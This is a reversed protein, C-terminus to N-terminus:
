NTKKNEAVSGLEYAHQRSPLDLMRAIDSWGFGAGRLALVAARKDGVVSAGKPRGAGARAGGRPTTNTALKEERAIRWVTARSVEVEECESIQDPTYGSLLLEVVFQVQEEPTKRM